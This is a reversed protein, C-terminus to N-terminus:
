KFNTGLHIKVVGYIYDVVLGEWLKDQVTFEIQLAALLSIEIQIKLLVDFVSSYDMTMAKM